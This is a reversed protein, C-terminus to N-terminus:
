EKKSKKEDPKITSRLQMLKSLVDFWFPGGLMIALATILWGLAMSAAASAVPFINCGGIGACSPATINAFQRIDTWGIPLGIDKIEKISTDIDSATDGKLNAARAVIAQRMSTDSMLARGVQIADVNLIIAAIIGIVFLIYQTRRKYWGTVRDMSADYWNELQTQAQKIDTGATDLTQLVLKGLTTDLLPSKGGPRLATQIDAVTQPGDGAAMKLVALAFNAKPIYSPLTGDFKLARAGKDVIAKSVDAKIALKRNDDAGVADVAPKPRMQDTKLKGADYGGDYLISILPNNFFKEAIGEVGQPDGLINRIGQELQKARAKLLTELAENLSTAILSMFAFLMALGIGTDLVQSGFM